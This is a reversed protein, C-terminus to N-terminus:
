FTLNLRVGYVWAGINREKEDQYQYQLDFTLSAWKTLDMKYYGEATTVSKIEGVKTNGDLYGVGLGLTTEKNLVKFGGYTVGGSVFSKFDGTDTHTNIGLRTFIGWNEWTLDGSFGVGERYDKEGKCNEFDKSTRWYYLRLNSELGGLTLKYIGGQLAYYNYYHGEDNKTNTILGTLHYEGYAIELVAGPNYSPLEALPNNVFADNMFQEVEDNAYENDDVYATTDIIGVTPSIELNGLKFTHKYWAEMLYNKTRPSLNQVDDELDDAYPVLSFGKENFAKNLANGGAFSVTVQLEDNKTPHFNFGVDASLSGRAKSGSLDNQFSAGQYVGTFSLDVTTSNNLELSWLPPSLTLGLLTLGKLGRM